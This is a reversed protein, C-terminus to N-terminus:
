AASTASVPMPGGACSWGLTGGRGTASDHPKLPRASVRNAVSRGQTWIGMPRLHTGMALRGVVAGGHAVHMATGGKLVQAFWGQGQGQEREQWVQQTDM